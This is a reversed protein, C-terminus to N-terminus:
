KIGFTFGLFIGQLTVQETLTKHGQSLYLRRYGLDIGLKKVPFSLGALVQGTLDSGAGFGGIDTRVFGAVGKVIKAQVRLGMVPAVFNTSQYFGNGSAIQGVNLGPPIVLPPTLNIGAGVHWYQLGVLADLNFRDTAVGRYGIENDWMFTNQRAYITTDPPINERAVARNEGVKLWILDGIYVVHNKRVDIAGMVGFKINDFIKHLPVNFNAEYPGLAIDGDIGAFWLYPTVSVHLKDPDQVFDSNLAQASAVRAFLTCIAFVIITRLKM